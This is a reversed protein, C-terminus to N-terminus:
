PLVQDFDFEPQMEPIIIDQFITIPKYIPFFGFNDNPMAKQAESMKGEPHYIFKDTLSRLQEYPYQKFFPMKFKLHWTFFRKEEISRKDISKMAINEITYVGKKDKQM